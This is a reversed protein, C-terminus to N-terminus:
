RSDSMCTAIWDVMGDLLEKWLGSQALQKHSCVVHMYKKPISVGRESQLM